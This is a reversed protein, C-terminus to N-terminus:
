IDEAETGPPLEITAITTALNGICQALVLLMLPTRGLLQVARQLKAMSQLYVPAIGGQKAHQKLEHQQFEMELVLYQLPLPNLREALAVVQPLTQSEISLSVSGTKHTKLRPALCVMLYYLNKPVFDFPLGTKASCSDMISCKKCRNAHYRPYTQKPHSKLRNLNKSQATQRLSLNSVAPFRPQLPQKQSEVTAHIALNPQSIRLSLRFAHFCM